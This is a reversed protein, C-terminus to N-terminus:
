RYGMMEPSKETTMRANVPQRTALNGLSSGSGRCGPFGAVQCGGDPILPDARVLVLKLANAWLVAM